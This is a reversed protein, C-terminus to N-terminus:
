AVAVVGADALLPRLTARLERLMVNLTSGGIGLAERIATRDLEGNLFGHMLCLDLFKGYDRKGQNKSELISRAQKLADIISQSVDCADVWFDNRFNVEGWTTESGIPTENRWPERRHRIMQKDRYQLVYTSTFGRLMGKFKAKPHAPNFYALGGKDIFRALIDMAVDEVDFRNIGSKAVIGYMMPYYQEFLESYDDPLGTSADV